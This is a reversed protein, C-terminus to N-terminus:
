KERKATVVGAMQERLIRGMESSVEETDFEVKRGTAPLGTILVLDFVSFSMLHGGDWIGEPLAGV